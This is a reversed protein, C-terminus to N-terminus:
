RLYDAAHKIFQIFEDFHQFVIYEVTLLIMGILLEGCCSKRKDRRQQMVDSAHQREDRAHQDRVKRKRYEFHSLRERGKISLKYAVAVMEFTDSSMAYSAEIILGDEVLQQVRQNYDDGLYQRLDTESIIGNPISHIHKLVHITNKM